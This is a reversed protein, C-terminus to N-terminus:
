YNFFYNIEGVKPMTSYKTIAQYNNIFGISHGFLDIYDFVSQKFLEPNKAQNLNIISGPKLNDFYSKIKQDM